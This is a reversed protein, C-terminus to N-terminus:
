FDAGKRVKLLLLEGLGFWLRLYLTCNQLLDANSSLFLGGALILLPSIYHCIQAWVPESFKFTM